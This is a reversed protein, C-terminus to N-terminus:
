EEWLLYKERTLIEWRSQPAHVDCRDIIFYRNVFVGEIELGRVTDTRDWGVWLLTYYRWLWLDLGFLCLQGESTYTLNPLSFCSSSKPCNFANVLMALCISCRIRYLPIKWWAHLTKTQSDIMSDSTRCHKQMLFEITVSLSILVGVIFSLRFKESVEMPRHLIHVVSPGSVFLLIILQDVIRQNRANHTSHKTCIFILLGSSFACSRNWSQTQIAIPYGFSCQAM